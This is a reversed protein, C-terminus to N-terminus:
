FAFGELEEEEQPRQARKRKKAELAARVMEDVVASPEGSPDELYSDLEPDKIPAAPVGGGDRRDKALYAQAVKAMYAHQVLEGEEEEGEDEDEVEAEVEAAAEETKLEEFFASLPNEATPEDADFFHAPLVLKDNAKQPPPPHSSSTDSPRVPPVGEHRAKKGSDKAGKLAARFAVSM